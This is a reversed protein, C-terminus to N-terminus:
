VHVVVACLLVVAYIPAGHGLGAAYIVRYNDRYIIINLKKNEALSRVEVTIHPTWHLSNIIPPPDLYMLLTDIRLYDPLSKRM